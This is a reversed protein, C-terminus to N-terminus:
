KTESPGHGAATTSATSTSARLALVAARRAELLARLKGFMADPLGHREVFQSAVADLDDDAWIAIRESKQLVM